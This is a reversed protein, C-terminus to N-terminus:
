PRGLARQRAAEKTVGRAAAIREWTLGAAHGAIDLQRAYSDLYGAVIATATIRARAVDRPPLRAAFDEVTADLLVGAWTETLQTIDRQLRQIERPTLAAEALRQATTAIGDKRPAM